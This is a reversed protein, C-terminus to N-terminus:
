KAAATAPAPAPAKGQSDVITRALYNTVHADTRVATLFATRLLQERRGRILETIQQRVGPSSLDRQGAAEKSVVFVITRAGGQNVVRARGPELQLIADRLPAPAGKVASLPVLGLDGGRPASQPDESYDRALDAFPTGKTLRDMLMAIKANAAEPTSADDGTRNAVQQDRVPTVVIQAIHFAQEPLNFQARNANYFDTVQQDTITIKAGVERDIEKQSLLRRRLGERMDAMTLNRSTLQQQFADDTMGQKVEGLATDIEADAVAINQRAAKALLIEELILDDLVGLKATVAEEDSPVQGPDGMRRFAKEVDARTIAKGDVTAWTDPSVAPQAPAAPPAPTSRCASVWVIATLGLVGLVPRYM